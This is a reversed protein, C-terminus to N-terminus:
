YVLASYHDAAVGLSGQGPPHSDLAEERLNGVGSTRGVYAYGHSAASATLFKGKSRNHLFSRGPPSHEGVRSTTARLQPEAGGSKGPHADAAERLSSM